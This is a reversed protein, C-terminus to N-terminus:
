ISETIGHKCSLRAEIPPQFKTLIIMCVFDGMGLLGDVLLQDEFGVTLSNVTGFGGQEVLHGM